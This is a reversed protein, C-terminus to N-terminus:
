DRSFRKMIDRKGPFVIKKEASLFLNQFENLNNANEPHKNIYDRFEKMQSISLDNEWYAVCFDEFNEEDVPLSLDIQRALAKDPYIDSEPKLTINELGELENRLDPNLLLFKEVMEIEQDSLKGDLYDIFFLEYNERTIEMKM